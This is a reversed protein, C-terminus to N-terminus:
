SFFIKLSTLSNTKIRMHLRAENLPTCTIEGWGKKLNNLFTSSNNIENILKRLRLEKSKDGSTEDVWRNIKNFFPTIEIDKYFGEIFDLLPKLDFDEYNLTSCYEFGCGNKDIIKVGKHELYEDNTINKESIEVQNTRKNGEFKFDKYRVFSTRKMFDRIEYFNFDDKNLLPKTNLIFEDIDFIDLFIYKKILESYLFDTTTM